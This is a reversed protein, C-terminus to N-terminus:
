VTLVCHMQRHSLLIIIPTCRTTPGPLGYYTDIIHNKSRQEWQKFSFTMRLSSYKCYVISTDIFNYYLIIDFEILLQPSDIIISVFRFYLVRVNYWQNIVITLLPRAYYEYIRFRVHLAFQIYINSIPVGLINKM